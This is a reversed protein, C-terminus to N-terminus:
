WRKGTDNILTRFTMHAKDFEVATPGTKGQRNKEVNLIQLEHGRSKCGRYCDKIFGEYAPEDPAYQTIFINADQEISGSDKSEAM